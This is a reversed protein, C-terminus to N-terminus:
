RSSVSAEQRIKQEYRVMIAVVYQDTVEYNDRVSSTRVAVTGTNVPQSACNGEVSGRVHVSDIVEM